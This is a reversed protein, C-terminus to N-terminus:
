EITSKEVKVVLTPWDPSNSSMFAAGGREEDFDDLRDGKGQRALITSKASQTM